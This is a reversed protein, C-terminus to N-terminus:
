ILFHPLTELVISKLILMKRREKKMLLLTIKSLLKFEIIMGIGTEKIKKSSRLPITQHKSAVGIIMM